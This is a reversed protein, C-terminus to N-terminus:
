PSSPRTPSSRGTWWAPPLTVDFEILLSSGTDLALDNVSLLGTGQAGGNPDTGGTDAGAPVTVLALSGPVFAAPSNLADLEDTFDLDVFDPQGINELRLRYRVTDGPAASALLAGSTPDHVTKEFLFAPLAVGVSHADEHDVVGVTGDTLVESYQRRDSVTEPDSGDTSWWETAGAVDTLAM